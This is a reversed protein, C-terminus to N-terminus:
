SRCKFDDTSYSALSGLYGRFDRSSIPMAVYIEFDGSQCGGLWDRPRLADSWASFPPAPGIVNFYPDTSVYPSTSRHWASPRSTDRIQSRYVVSYLWSCRSERHLVYVAAHRYALRPEVTVDISDLRSGARNFHVDIPARFRTGPRVAGTPGVRSASLFGAPGANGTPGIGGWQGLPACPKADRASVEVIGFTGGVLLLVLAALAIVRWRGRMWLARM